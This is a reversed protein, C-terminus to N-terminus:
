PRLVGDGAAALGVRRRKVEAGADYGLGEDRRRVVVHEAGTLSSMWVVHRRVDNKEQM